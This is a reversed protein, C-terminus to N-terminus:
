QRPQGGKMASKLIDARMKKDAQREKTANSMMANRQQAALRMQEKQAELQLRQAELQM